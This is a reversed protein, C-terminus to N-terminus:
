KNIRTIQTLVTERIIEWYDILNQYSLKQAVREVPVWILDHVLDAEYKKTDVGTDIALFYHTRSPHGLSGIYEMVPLTTIIKCTRGAEEATERLACEELTEGLEVHGKPFTYDNQKKRYVLAIERQQQNILICGAKEVTM